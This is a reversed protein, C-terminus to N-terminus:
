VIWFGCARGVRSVAPVLVEIGGGRLAGVRAALGALTPHEFVERVGVEVGVLATLRTVLRTALLSHGGLAFFEDDLGVRSVGLLDSWLEGIAAEIGDRPARYGVREGVSGSPSPLSGRDIKGSSGVPLAELWVVVSPVLHGPLVRRLYDRLGAGDGSGVAYGILRDDRAVVACSVVHGSAVLAAEVEGPEIRYGRVKVQGDRRGVYELVGDWRRRVLDGTRYLRGGGGGYRDAIFRSSTWGGRGLYGRALGVGGLYL